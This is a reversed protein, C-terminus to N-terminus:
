CGNLTTSLLRRMLSHRWNALLIQIPLTRTRWLWVAAKRKRQHRLIPLSIKAQFFILVHHSHFCEFRTIKSHWDLTSFSRWPNQSLWMLRRDIPPLHRVVILLAALQTFKLSWCMVNRLSALQFGWSAHINLQIFQILLFIWPLIWGALDEASGIIMWNCELALLAAMSRTELGNVM